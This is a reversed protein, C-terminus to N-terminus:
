IKMNILVSFFRNRVDKEQKLLRVTPACVLEEAQDTRNKALRDLVVCRGLDSRDRWKEFVAECCLESLGLLSRVRGGSRNPQVNPACTRRHKERGKKKARGMIAM